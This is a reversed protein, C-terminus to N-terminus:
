TYEMGCNSTAGADAIATPIQQALTLRKLDAECLTATTEQQGQHWTPPQPLPIEQALNIAESTSTGELNHVKTLTQAQEELQHQLMCLAEEASQKTLELREIKQRRKRAVRQARMDDRWGITKRRQSKYEREEVQRPPPASRPYLSSPSFPKCVYNKTAVKMKDSTM